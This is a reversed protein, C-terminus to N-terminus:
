DLPPWCALVFAKFLASSEPRQPLCEPHWQVALGFPYDPIEVAEVIGDPARASALLRPALDKVGQHHLSNVQIESEHLIKGLQSEPLIQVPHALYDRPRDLNHQHQLGGNHQDLIHEYLSGGMGINILQLGRCIGLFPLKLELVRELLYLEIRDRDLDIEAVKPHMHSNYFDPHIDGGGTFIIGDLSELIKNLQSPSLGLPIMLPSGGARTVASTYAESISNYPIGAENQQRYTTLGILPITSTSDM